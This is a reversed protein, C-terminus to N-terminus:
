CVARLARMARRLARMTAPISPLGGARMAATWGRRELIRARILAAEAPALADLHAAHAQVFAELAVAASEHTRPGHTFGAVIADRTAADLPAPAPLDAQLAALMAPDLLLEDGARMLELQLPLDRALTARLDALLAQAAPSVPRIMVAAPEGTRSGRSAGVRILRYGNARRFALLGPTAGFLTGFLDPAYCAHVHEILRTGLGLRRLAPHVAIRVSRIIRLTAADPRGAHSALTEPLAHGRIRQRGASIAEAVPAPLDGEIAVLTAAVIAGRYRLVHLRVNPADLMRQLDGPTTRYHAHVMLGFYQRLTADDLGAGRDLALAEVAAPDFDARLHAAEAPLADLLLADFIVRELPDAAAWRIPTSLKLRTLPRQEALWAVFRLLFGRGTGEYGRATTAFVLHADPHLCVLRQLVPVPIQAAEDIVIVAADHPRLALDLPSVFPLPRDAFRFIEAAAGRQGASVIVAADLQALALGVASSKGRGRDAVLVVAQPAASGLTTVIRQVCAAQERTGRVARDAPALREPPATAPLCAEFRAAFRRAVDAESFPHVALRPDGGPIGDVPLRLILAGGGRVFGHAQGIVDADLRAHLDIIVADFARGLLDRVARPATHGPGIWLVDAPDLAAVLEAARAATEDPAGRLVHCARPRMPSDTSM